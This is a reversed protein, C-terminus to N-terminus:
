GSYIILKHYKNGNKALVLAMHDITIVVEGTIDDRGDASDLAFHEAAARAQEHCKPEFEEALNYQAIISKIESDYLGAKGLVEVIVGSALNDKTPYRVIEVM